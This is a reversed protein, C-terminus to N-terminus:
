AGETRDSLTHFPRVSDAFAEVTIKYGGTVPIVSLRPKATVNFYDNLVGGLDKEILDSGEASFATRDSEVIRKLREIESKM